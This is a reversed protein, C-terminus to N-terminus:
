NILANILHACKQTLVRQPFVFHHGQPLERQVRFHSGVGVDDGHCGDFESAAAAAAATVVAAAAAADAALKVMELRLGLALLLLLLLLVQRQLRVQRIGLAEKRRQTAQFRHTRAAQM